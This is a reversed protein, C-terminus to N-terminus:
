LLIVITYRAGAQSNKRKSFNNCTRLVRLPFLIRCTPKTQCPIRYSPRSRIGESCAQTRSDTCCPEACSLWVLRQRQDRNRVGCSAEAQTEPHCLAPRIVQFGSVHKATARPWGATSRRGMGAPRDLFPKCSRTVRPSDLFLPGCHHHASDDLGPLPVHYPGIRSLAEPRRRPRLSGRWGNV